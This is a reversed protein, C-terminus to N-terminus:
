SAPIHEISQVVSSGQELRIELDHLIDVVVVNGNVVEGVIDLFIVLIGDLLVHLKAGQEGEGDDARLLFHGNVRVLGRNTRADVGPTNSLHVVRIVGVESAEAARNLARVQTVELGERLVDKVLRVASLLERAAHMDVGAVALHQRLLHRRLAHAELLLLEPPLLLLEPLDLELDLALDVLLPLLEQGLLLAQPPHNGKVTRRLDSM